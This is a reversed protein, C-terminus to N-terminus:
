LGVNSAVMSRRARAQGLLNGVQNSLATGLGGPIQYSLTCTNLVISQAALPVNGLYSAAITMGEWCLWDSCIMVVSPIALRYYQRMAMFPKWSWGGWAQRADCLYTYALIGFFMLWCTVVNAAAAGLFGFGVTPSWVFLYNNVMHIPMVVMLILTSARMHRQAQLFRKICEFVIWPLSALMQIRVYQGCLRAIEPEQNLALLLWEMNFLLPVVMLYHALVAIIGRQLHFGVLTRDKSATFATSCFTDLAAALGVSPGNILMVVTMNGLSAASLENSGLHGLSVINAFGISFQLLSSLAVPISSVVMTRAEQKAMVSLSVSDQEIFENYLTATSDNTTLAGSSEIIADSTPALLPTYESSIAAGPPASQQTM